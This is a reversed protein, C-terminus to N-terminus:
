SFVPCPMRHTYKTVHRSLEQLDLVPVFPTTKPKSPNFSLAVGCKGSYITFYPFAFTGGFVSDEKLLTQIIFHM